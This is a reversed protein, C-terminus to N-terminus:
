AQQLYALISKCFEPLDQPTRSTILNDDVVVAADQWIAGAHVMDDRIGHYSTLRRERVVDASTLVWGAHCIAAILKHQENMRNILELVATHQRLKDPAWGGPIIVGEWDQAALDEFTVTAALPYGYKGHYVIKEAGALEVTIGAELLRFYPVLVEADQFLHEILIIVKM